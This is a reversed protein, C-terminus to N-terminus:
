GGANYAVTAVVELDALDPLNERLMAPEKL